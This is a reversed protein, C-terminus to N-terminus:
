RVEGEKALRHLLKIIEDYFQPKTVKIIQQFTPTKSEGHGLDKDNFVVIQLTQDERMYYFIDLNFAMVRLVEEGSEPVTGSFAAATLILHKKGQMSDLARTLTGFTAQIWQLARTENQIDLATAGSVPTLMFDHNHDISYKLTSHIALNMLDRLESNQESIKEKLQRKKDEFFTLTESKAKDWHIVKQKPGHVEVTWRRATPDELDFNWTVVRWSSGLPTFSLFLERPDKSFINWWSM